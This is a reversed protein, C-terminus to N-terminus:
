TLKTLIRLLFHRCSFMVMPAIAAVVIEDLNYREYERTYQALLKEFAPTFVDLTTDYSSAADKALGSIEDTVLHVQQLRAIV